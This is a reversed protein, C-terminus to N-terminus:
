YYLGLYNNTELSIRAVNDEVVRWSLQKSRMVAHHSQKESISSRTANYIMESNVQLFKRM